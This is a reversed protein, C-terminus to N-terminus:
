ATRGTENSVLSAARNGAHRHTILWHAVVSVVIVAGVYQLAQQWTTASYFAIFISGHFIMGLGFAQVNDRGILSADWDIRRLSLILTAMMVGLWLPEVFYLCSLTLSWASSSMVLTRILSSGIPNLTVPVSWALPPRNCNPASAGREGIRNM